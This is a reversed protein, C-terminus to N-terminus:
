PIAAIAIQRSAAIASSPLGSNSIGPTRLHSSTLLSNAKILSPEASGLPQQGQVANEGLSKTKHLQPGM